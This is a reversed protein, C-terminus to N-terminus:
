KISKKEFQKGLDELTEIFTMVVNKRLTKISFFIRGLNQKYM